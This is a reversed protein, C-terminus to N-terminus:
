ATFDATVSDSADTGVATGEENEVGSEIMQTDANYFHNGAYIYFTDDTGPATTDDANLKLVVEVQEDSIVPLEYAYAVKGAVASHRIPTSVKKLTAGGKISVKEPADWTTTNLELVLVNPNGGLYPNGFYEKVGAQLKISVDQTQGASFTEAGADGDANYFTATLSTEVEDNAMEYEVTPTEECPVTYEFSQGYANDTFDTTSIGMVIEYTKGASVAFGTGATFTSFAKQGKLRYLNTAETLATGSDKDVANITLNPSTTSDCFSVQNPDNKSFTNQPIVFIALVVIVAIIAVGFMLMGNGKGAKNKLPALTQGKMSNYRRETNNSKM